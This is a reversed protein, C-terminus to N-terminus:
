VHWSIWLFTLALALTLYLTRNCCTTIKATAGVRSCCLWRHHEPKASAFAEPEPDIRATPWTARVSGIRIGRGDTLFKEGPAEGDAKKLGRAEGFTNRLQRGSGGFGRRARGVRRKATPFRPSCWSAGGGAAASAARKPPRGRGLARDLRLGGELVANTPDPSTQLPRCNQLSLSAM